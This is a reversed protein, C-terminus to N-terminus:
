VDWVEGELEDLIEDADETAGEAMGYCDAADEVEGGVEGWEYAEVALGVAVWKHPARVVPGKPDGDGSRSGDNVYAMVSLMGPRSSPSGDSLVVAEWMSGDDSHGVRVTHDGATVTEVTRIDTM